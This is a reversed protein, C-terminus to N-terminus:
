ATVYEPKAADMSMSSLDIFRKEMRKRIADAARSVEAPAEAWYGGGGGGGENVM